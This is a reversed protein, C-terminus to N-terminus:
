IDSCSVAVVSWSIFRVLGSHGLSDGYHEVRPKVWFQQEPRTTCMYYCARICSVVHFEMQWTSEQSDAM